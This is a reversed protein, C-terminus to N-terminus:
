FLQVLGDHGRIEYLNELQTNSKLQSNTYVFEVYDYQKLTENFKIPLREFTIFPLQTVDSEFGGLLEEVINTRIVTDPSKCFITKILYNRNFKFEDYQYTQYSDWWASYENKGLYPLYNAQGNELLTKLQLHLNNTEDLLLYCRYEPRMLTQETVNLIGGSEQSAYGVANNYKIITKSFNGKETNLPEIGVKLDKLRLYYEPFTGSKQYGKLGLIAGLVGLLAPKHLMNFTLYIGDNIDPKKLCGMQAKLDISVLKNAM